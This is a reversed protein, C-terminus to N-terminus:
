TQLPKLHEAFESAMVQLDETFKEPNKALEERLEELSFTELGSSEGDKFRVPGDYYGIYFYCIFPQKFEGNQTKRTSLFNRDTKVQQLIGVIDLHTSRVAQSFEGAELVVAPFGLEEACERVVTVTSSEGQAVHGGITKDYMGANDTKISSRKQLYIRGASNMVLIRVTKVKRTIKGTKAYENKSEKYFEEREQVGLPADELDYVELPESM